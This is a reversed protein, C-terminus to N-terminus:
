MYNVQPIEMIYINFWLIQVSWDSVKHKFQGEVLLLKYSQTVVAGEARWQFPYQLYYSRMLSALRGVESLIIVM